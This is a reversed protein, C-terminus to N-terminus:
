IEIGLKNCITSIKNMLEMNEAKLLKIEEDQSQVRSVLFPIIEIYNVSLFDSDNTKYVLEPLINQVEQAIFGYRQRDQMTFSVPNLKSVVDENEIKKINKKLRIDSSQVIIGGVTLNKSLTVNEGIDLTGTVNLNNNISTQGEITTIGGVTLNKKIETQKNHVIGSSFIQLINENETNNLNPIPNNLGFGLYNQLPNDLDVFHTLVSFNSPKETEGDQEGGKEIKGSTMGFIIHKEYKTKDDTIKDLASILPLYRIDNENNFSEKLFENEYLYSSGNSVNLSKISLIGNNIEHNDKEKPRYLSLLKIDETEPEKRSLIAFKNFDPKLTIEQLNDGFSQYFDSTGSKNKTIRDSKEFLRLKLENFQIIEGNVDSTTNSLWQDTYYTNYVNKYTSDVTQKNSVHDDMIFLVDNPISLNNVYYCSYVNYSGNTDNITSHYVNPIKDLLPNLYSTNYVNNLYPFEDKSDYIIPMMKDIYEKGYVEPNNINTINGNEDLIYPVRKFYINCLSISYVNSQTVPNGDEILLKYVGPINDINKINLIANLTPVYPYKNIQSDHINDSFNITMNKLTENIYNTSYVNKAGQTADNIGYVTINNEELIEVRGILAILKNNIGLLQSLQNQVTAIQLELTQILKSFEDNSSSGSSNKGTNNFSKIGGSYFYSRSM